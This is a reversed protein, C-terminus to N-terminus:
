HLAVLQCGGNQHHTVRSMMAIAAPAFRELCHRSGDALQLKGLKLFSYTDCPGVHNLKKISRSRRPIPGIIGKSLHPKLEFLYWGHLIMINCGFCPYGM